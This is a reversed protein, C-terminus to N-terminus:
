TSTSELRTATVWFKSKVGTELLSNRSLWAVISQPNVKFRTQSMILVYLWICWVSLHVFCLEIMQGTRSFPQTNMQLSLPQPQAWNCDSLSWIECRNQALLEKVNVYSYLTSESQFTYMVHYSCVTQHVRNYIKQRFSRVWITLNEVQIRSQWNWLGARKSKNIEESALIKELTAKGGNSLESWTETWHKQVM